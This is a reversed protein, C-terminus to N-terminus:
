TFRYNFKIDFLAHITLIITVVPIRVSVDTNVVSM